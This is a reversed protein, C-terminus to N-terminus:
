PGHTVDVFFVIHPNGINLAVGDILPPHELHVHCTDREEALPVDRWKMSVKGMACSVEQNGTKRCEILGALTELVIENSGAEEMLLWAVCRTANGCAEVERGDVNLIRMFVSAQGDNTPPQIILLQDGGIGTKQHCLRIIEEADPRYAESRADTIVFHNQLGHM